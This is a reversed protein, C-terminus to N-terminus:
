LAMTITKQFCLRFVRPRKSCQGDIRRLNDFDLGDFARQTTDLLQMANMTLSNAGSVHPPQEYKLWQFRLQMLHAAGKEETLPHAM